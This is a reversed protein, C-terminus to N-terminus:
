EDKLKMDIKKELILGLTFFYDMKSSIDMAENVTYNRADILYGMFFVKARGGSACHIFIKGNNESIAKIFRQLYDQNYSDPYSIPISIYKIGLNNLLSDEDFSSKKFNEMEKETRLNIVLEVGESKIWNFIDMDPQKGLYFDGVKYIDSFQEITQVSDILHKDPKNKSFCNVSLLIMLLSLFTRM